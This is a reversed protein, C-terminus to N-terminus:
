SGRRQSVRPEPREAVMHGTDYLNTTVVRRKHSGDSDMIWIRNDNRLFAIKRGNPSIVPETANTALRKLGTGDVNIVRIEYGGFEKSVWTFVISKEDRSWSPQYGSPVLQRLGSGNANIIWIPEERAASVFAISRGDPSWAPDEVCCPKRPRTLRQRNTGDANMVVLHGDISGSVVALRQGSPSWDPTWYDGGRTIRRQGSGDANMIWVQGNEKKGDSVFAIRRGTPSWAPSTGGTADRTLWRARGGAASITGIGQYCTEGPDDYTCDTVGEFAILDTSMPEASAGGVVVALGLLTIRLARNM